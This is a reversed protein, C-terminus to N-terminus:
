VLVFESARSELPFDNTPSSVEILDGSTTDDVMSISGGRGNSDRKVAVVYRDQEQPDNCLSYRRWSGNPVQVPLNPGVEFAPLEAGDPDRLEFRWIDRAIEEKAAIKLRFVVDEQPSMGSEM